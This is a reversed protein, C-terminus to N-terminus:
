REPKAAPGCGALTVRATVSGITNMEASAARGRGADQLYFTTGGQIWRGTEKTGEASATVFLAGDPAGVRLEVYDAGPASWVLTAVGLGSGDCVQIPNPSLRLPQDTAPEVRSLEFDDFWAASNRDTSVYVLASAASEPASVLMQQETWAPQAPMVNIDTRLLSGDGSLWNVQTRTRQDLRDARAYYRLLCLRGPEVDVRQYLVDSGACEVAVQGSRSRAGTADVRCGGVANWRAPLSESLEEFGPNDLLNPGLATGLSDGGVAFLSRLGDVQLPVFRRRFVADWPLQIDGREDNVLLYRVGMQRLEEYLRAGGAVAVAVRRYRYPGVHDGLVSRDTFYGANECFLCYLAGRDTSVADLRRLLRAVPVERFVYEDRQRANWPLPGRRRVEEVGYLVGPAAVVLALSLAPLSPFPAPARWRVHRSARVLLTDIAVAGALALAPMIPLLYRRDQMGLFWAGTYLILLSFPMRLRRDFALAALFAPLLLLYVPAVLGHLGMLGYASEDFVLRLPALLVRRPATVLQGVRALLDSKGSDRAGRAVGAGGAGGAGRAGGPGWAVAAGSVQEAWESAGFVSTAFPFVPNGTYYVIRGYWPALVAGAALLFLATDCWRRPGRTAPSQAPGRLSPPPSRRPTTLRRWLTLAMGETLAAAGALAVVFFLGLYKTGAAFGASLGAVVLWATERRERWVWFGYLALTSFLTLGVDILATTAVWIVLPSSSWAAAAWLGARPSLLRAGWVVLLAGTLVGALLHVVQAGVDDLFLVMATYLMEFLQPFVPYRLAPLFALRGEAAFSKAYPLHYWTADFATPPYLALLCAPAVVAACAGLGLMARWGVGPRERWSALLERRRQFLGVGIVAALAVALIPARLLGLLGLVGVLSGVLGLGLSVAVVADEVSGLGRLERTVFGGAAFAALALLAIALAHLAGYLLTDTM